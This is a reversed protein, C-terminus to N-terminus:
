SVMKTISMPVIFFWWDKQFASANSEKSSGCADLGKFFRTGSRKRAQSYKDRVKQHPIKKVASQSSKKPNGPIKSLKM